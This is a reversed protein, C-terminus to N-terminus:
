REEASQFSKRKERIVRFGQKSEYHGNMLYRFAAALGLFFLSSGLFGFIILEVPTLSGTTFAVLLAAAVFLWTLAYLKVARM